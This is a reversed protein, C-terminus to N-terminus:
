LCVRSQRSGRKSLVCFPCSRLVCSPSVQADVPFLLVHCPGATKMSMLGFLCVLSTRCDPDLSVLSVMSLLDVNCIMEIYEWVRSIPVLAHPFPVSLESLVGVFAPPCVRVKGTPESKLTSPFFPVCTQMFSSRACPSLSELFVQPCAYQACLLLPSHSLCQASCCCNISGFVNKLFCSHQVAVYRM